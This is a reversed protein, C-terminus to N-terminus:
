CPKGALDRYQSRVARDAEGSRRAALSLSLGAAQPHDRTRPSLDSSQWARAETRARRFGGLSFRYKDLPIFGRSDEYTLATGPVMVRQTELELQKFIEFSRLYLWM